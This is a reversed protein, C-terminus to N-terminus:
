ILLESEATITINLSYDIKSDLTEVKYVIFATRISGLWINNYNGHNVKTTLNFKNAKHINAARISISDYIALSITSNTNITPTPQKNINFRLITDSLSSRILNDEALVKWIVLFGNTANLKHIQPSFFIQQSRNFNLVEGYDPYQITTRFGRNSLRLPSTLLSSSINCNTTDFTLKFPYQLLFDSVQTLNIQDGSWIITQNPAVIEKTANLIM